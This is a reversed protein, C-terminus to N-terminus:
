LSVFIKQNIDTFVIVEELLLVQSCTHYSLCLGIGCSLVRGLWTLIHLLLRSFFFASVQDQHLLVSLLIRSEFGICTRIQIVQDLGFSLDPPGCSRIPECKGGRDYWLATAINM